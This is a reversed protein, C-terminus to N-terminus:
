HSLLPGIWERGIVQARLLGCLHLRSEVRKEGLGNGVKAGLLEVLNSGHNLLLLFFTAFALDLGLLCLAQLIQFAKLARVNQVEHLMAARTATVAVRAVAVACLTAICAARLAM